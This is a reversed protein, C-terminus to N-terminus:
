IHILSLWLVATLANEESIFLHRQLDAMIATIVEPGVPKPHPVVVQWMPPPQVPVPQSQEATTNLQAVNSNNITNITM